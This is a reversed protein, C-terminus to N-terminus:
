FESRIPKKLIYGSAGAQLSQFLNEDDEYVTQMLIALSPFALRLVKTAQIGNVLPMEIDMLVVDPKCAAVHAVANEGNTFSGVILFESDQELLLKLSELRNVNDDFVAVRIM